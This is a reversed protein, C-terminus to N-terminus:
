HSRGPGDHFAPRSVQKACWLKRLIAGPGTSPIATTVLPCHRLRSPWSRSLVKKIILERVVADLSRANTAAVATTAPMSTTTAGEAPATPGEVTVWVKEYVPAVVVNVTGAPM